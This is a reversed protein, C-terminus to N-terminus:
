PLRWCVSDLDSNINGAGQIGLARIETLQDQVSGLTSETVNLYGQTSDLNRITQDRFEQERQIGMVRIAAAPDQSPLNYRKGTSLQDQLQQIGQQSIQVQYLSRYRSQADSTRGAVVPYFSSLM